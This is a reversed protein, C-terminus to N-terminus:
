FRACGQNKLNKVYGKILPRNSSMHHEWRFYQYNIVASGHTIGNRSDQSREGRIQRISLIPLGAQRRGNLIM